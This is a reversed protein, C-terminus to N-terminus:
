TVAQKTKYEECDWRKNAMVDEIIDVAALIDQENLYLPTIGFRVINPMRFDGILGQAILAQVVAYGEKFAFSVQSGRQEPNRPSVLILAPCRACVQVIFLESLEISRARVQSLQVGQWVELAADLSALGLVSPTGVRMKGVGQMPTYKSEFAFPNAHGMWGSLIPEFAELHQQNVYL